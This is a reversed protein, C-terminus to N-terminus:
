AEGVVGLAMGHPISDQPLSLTLPFRAQSPSMGQASVREGGKMQGMAIVRMSGPVGELLGSRLGLMGGLGKM